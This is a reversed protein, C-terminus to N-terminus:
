RQELGVPKADATRKPKPQRLPQENRAQIPEPQHEGLKAGTM